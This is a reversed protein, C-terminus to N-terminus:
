TTECSALHLDRLQETALAIAPSQRPVLALATMLARRQLVIANLLCCRSRTRRM